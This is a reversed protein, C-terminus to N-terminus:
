FIFYISAVFIYYIWFIQDLVSQYWIIRVSVSVLNAIEFNIVCFTFSSLVLVIIIYEIEACAIKHRKKICLWHLLFILLFVFINYLMFLPSVFLFFFYCCELTTNIAFHSLGYTLTANLTMNLHRFSAMSEILHNFYPTFPTLFLLYNLHIKIKYM